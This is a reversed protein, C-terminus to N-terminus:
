FSARFRAYENYFEDVCNIVITIAEKMFNSIDNNQISLACSLINKLLHSISGEFLIGVYPDMQSRSSLFSSVRDIYDLLAIKSSIDRHLLAKLENCFDLIDNLPTPNLRNFSEKIYQICQLKTNIKELLPAGSITGEIYAGEGINHVINPKYAKLALKISEKSLSFISNSYVRHMGNGKVEFCNPPITSGEKGYYSDKSHLSKGEIYGCDLGCIIISKSFLCALTFGANGVFPACFELVRNSPFLYSASSGGRLFIYAESSSDLAKEDVVNAAILPTTGLNANKLVENLYSIREIEIQFDVCINNKKLIGLATGCSFIIMRNENCKLFDFNEELSPGSGVVCIPIDFKKLEKKSKLVNYKKINSLTNKLGRIEDEFSGWGRSNAKYAENVIRKSKNIKNSNFANLELRLFNNTVKRSYFYHNLFISNISDQIFIYFSKSISFLKAYDIFYCSICFLEIDEEFILLSHFRYDFSVLLELFLGGCLGFINTQPLFNSPLHYLNSDKEGVLDVIKNIANASIPLNKSPIKSISINNSYIRWSPNHM